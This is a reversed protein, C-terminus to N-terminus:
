RSCGRWTGMPALTLLPVVAISSPQFSTCPEQRSDSGRLSPQLKRMPTHRALCLSRIVNNFAAVVFAARFSLILQSALEAAARVLHACFDSGRHLLSGSHTEHALREIFPLLKARPQANYKKGLEDGSLISRQSSTLMADDKGKGFERRMGGRWQLPEEFRLSAQVYFPHSLRVLEM